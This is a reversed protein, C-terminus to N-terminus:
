LGGFLGGFGLNGIMMLKKLMLEEPNSHESLLGGLKVGTMPGGYGPTSYYQDLGQPVPAGMGARQAADNVAGEFPQGITPAQQGGMFMELLGGINSMMGPAQSEEQQQQLYQLQAPTYYQGAQRGAFPSQYQQPAYPQKQRPIM